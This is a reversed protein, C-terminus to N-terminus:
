KRLIMNLIDHVSLWYGHKYVFVVEIILLALMVLVLISFLTRIIERM